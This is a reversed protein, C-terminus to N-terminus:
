VIKKKQLIKITSASKALKRFSFGTYLEPNELNLWTAIYKGMSGFKDIGVKRNLCKGKGYCLFFASHCVNKPRLYIYKKLIEYFQGGMTFIQPSGKKQSPIEVSISSGMDKFYQIRMNYLQEKPCDCMVSVILIVKALLYDSDPAEKIFKNIEDSTFVKCKPNPVRSIKYRQYKETLFKKLGMYNIINMGKYTNLATCLISYQKWVTPIQCKKLFEDFYARLVEENIEEYNKEKQWDTFKKYAVQYKDKSDDPIVTEAFATVCF